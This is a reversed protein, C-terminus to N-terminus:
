LYNQCALRGDENADPTATKTPKNENSVFSRDQTISPHSLPDFSMSMNKPTSIPEFPKVREM